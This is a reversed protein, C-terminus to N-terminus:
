YVALFSGVRESYTEVGWSWLPWGGGQYVMWWEHVWTQSRFGVELISGEGNCIEMAM